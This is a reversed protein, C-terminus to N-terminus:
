SKSILLSRGDVNDPPRVEMLDYVSASVDAVSGGEAVERGSVYLMANHFTHMGVIPGRGSLAQKGFAGKPDYGDVPNIVVDPAIDFHPGSYIDDKFLVDRIVKNGEEDTLDALKGALEDRLTGYEGRPVIGQAERGEVNLYFRGPDMCFVRTRAPDIDGLSKAEGSKYVLYGAEELFRNLYIEKKLNCFGHDSMIILTVDDGLSDDVEGLFTDIAKFINMFEGAYKPHGEEMLGWMFHYLRDTEMVHLQAFDWKKEKYLEMFAKTRAEFVRVLDPYLNDLNERARWPDIDLEYGRAKLRGALDQPYTAGELKPALFGSVLYGKVTRPPFTVPVNMVLVSKGADSLVEWLTKSTMNSGNPIYVSYTGPKRDIFGFINHKAANKCTMYTSWAVCSVFPHTSTIEVVSGRGFIKAFSPLMGEAIKAKVFSLPTGDLGIVLVRPKKKFWM